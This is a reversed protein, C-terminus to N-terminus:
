RRKKDYVKYNYFNLIKGYKCSVKLIECSKQANYKKLLEIMKIKKDKIALDLASCLLVGGCLNIINPNAGKSLLYELSHIDNEYISDIIATNEYQKKNLNKIKNFIEYKKNNKCTSYPYINEYNINFKLFLGLKDCNRDKIVCNKDKELKCNDGQSLYHNLLM